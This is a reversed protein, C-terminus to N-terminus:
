SKQRLKMNIGIRMVDWGGGQGRIHIETAPKMGKQHLHSEELQLLKGAHDPAQLIRPVKFIKKIETVLRDKDMQGEQMSSALCPVSPTRWGLHSQWFGCLYLSERFPVRSHGAQNLYACFPSQRRNGARAYCPRSFLEDWQHLLAKQFDLTSWTCAQSGCISLLRPLSIATTQLRLKPLYGTQVIRELVPFLISRLVM